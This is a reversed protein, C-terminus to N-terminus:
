FVALFVDASNKSSLQIECFDVVETVEEKAEDCGAVDAFTVNNNADDLMRAKSKGFSFAGGKGGGQMQRMFFIWVGILLLMPFWSIFVQSLFSQEEAPKSDFKIGNAVLDGVLGRDFITGQSKIKKGETTVAIVTRTSDDITVEKIHKAKVEDLFESYPVSAMGSTGAKGEFQKFLTFLVLAVVVWIAAKSFMNNM